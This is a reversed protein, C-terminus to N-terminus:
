CRIPNTLCKYCWRYLTIGQNALADTFSTATERCEVLTLSAFSSASPGEIARTVTLTFGTRATVKVIEINTNDDITLYYYDGGSLTPLGTVSTLIISTTSNNISGNLTTEFNNIYLRNAM